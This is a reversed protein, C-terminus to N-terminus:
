PLDIGAAACVLTSRRRAEAALGTALQAALVPDRRRCAAAIARVRDDSRPAVRAGAVSPIRSPDAREVGLATSMVLAYMDSAAVGAHVAAEARELEADIVKDLGAEDRSGSIAKGNVFTTPTGDVGLALAAAGEAAVLDHYRRDDLAARFKAMDVGAAQAHAELDSRALAGFHAYVQDHFPWFKGQDAAAIAAEAALAAHRHMAMALHRYIIRVRDGYRTRAHELVPSMKACYPCQFDGWTVITVLADDPGLQHGPLGVGMKYAEREDFAPDRHQESPVREATAAGHAVLADYGGGERAARALEEDVVDAFVKLPRSGNVARGNLFFSPTGSVGLAVADQVDAAIQARHAHTDLDARFRVLDLGLERAVLEVSARDLRGALAFLRDNMPKFRGQAAAALAAEAALTVDEDLPLTRHVWRLQGPYLRQLHDLTPQVRNCFGCAYDSWIVITVPADASGVEPAGGLPVRYITAPDFGRKDAYATGAACVVLALVWRKLEGV